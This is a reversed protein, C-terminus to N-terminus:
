EYDSIPHNNFSMIAFDQISSLGAEYEEKSIRIAGEPNYVQDNREAKYYYVESWDKNPETYYAVIVEYAGDPRLEFKGNMQSAAGSSGYEYIKCDTGIDFGYRVGGAAVCKVNSDSASYTCVAITNGDYLLILEDIGDGNLDYKDYGLLSEDEIFTYDVNRFIDDETLERQNRILELFGKVAEKYADNGVDNNGSDDGSEGSSVSENDEILQYSETPTGWVKDLGEQWSTGDVIEKNGDKVIFFVDHSDSSDDWTQYYSIFHSLSGDVSVKFFHYNYYGADSPYEAYAMICICDNCAYIKCIEQDYTVYDKSCSQLSEKCSLRVAAGDVITYVDDCVYQQYWDGYYDGYFALFLEDNGDGNLDDLMYYSGRYEPDNNAEKDVRYQKIIPDYVEMEDVEANVESTETSTTIQMNNAENKETSNENSDAVTENEVSFSNDSKNTRVIVVVLLVCLIILIGGLIILGAVIAGNKKGKTPAAVNGNTMYNANNYTPANGNAMYNMSSSASANCYPCINMNDEIFSGCYNCKRM